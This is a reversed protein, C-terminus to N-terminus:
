HAPIQHGGHRGLEHDLVVRGFHGYHVMKLFSAVLLEIMVYLKVSLHERSLAGFIDDRVEIYSFSVVEVRFLNLPGM